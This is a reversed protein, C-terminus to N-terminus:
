YHMYGATSHGILILPLSDGSGSMIVHLANVMFATGIANQFYHYVFVM